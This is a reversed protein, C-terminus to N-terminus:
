FALNKSSMKLFHLLFGVPLQPYVTLSFCSCLRIVLKTKMGYNEYQPGRRLTDPDDGDNINGIESFLNVIDDTYLGSGLSVLCVLTLWVGGVM